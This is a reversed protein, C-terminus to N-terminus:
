PICIRCASRGQSLCTSRKAIEPCRGVVYECNPKHFSAGNNTVYVNGDRFNRWIGRRTRIASSQLAIYDDRLEVFSQTGLPQYFSALGQTLLERNACIRHGNSIVVFVLGLIRDYRDTRQRVDVEVEIEKNLCLRKLYDRAEVAGEQKPFTTMEPADIGVLRVRSCRDYHEHDDIIVTDGDCIYRCRARIFESPFRSTPTFSRLPSTSSSATIFSPSRSENKRRRQDYPLQQGESLFSTVLFRFCAYVAFLCNGMYKLNSIIKKKKVIVVSFRITKKKKKNPSLKRCYDSLNRSEIRFRIKHKKQKNQKNTKTLLFLKEHLTSRDHWCKPWRKQTDSRWFIACLQKAPLKSLAIRSSSARRKPSNRSVNFTITPLLVIILIFTTISLTTVTSSTTTTTDKLTATNAKRRLITVNTSVLLNAPTPKTSKWRLRGRWGFTLRFFM